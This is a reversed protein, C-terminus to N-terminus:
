WRLPSQHWQFRDTSWDMFLFPCLRHSCSLQDHQHNPLPASGVLAVGRKEKRKERKRTIHSNSPLNRTCCAPHPFLSQPPIPPSQPPNPPPHLHVPPYLSLQHRGLKRSASLFLTPAHFHNLTFGRNLGDGTWGSPFNSILGLIITDYKLTM